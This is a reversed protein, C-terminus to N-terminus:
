CEHTQKKVIMRGVYLRDRFEFTQRVWKFFDRLNRFCYIFGRIMDLRSGFGFFIFGFEYLEGGLFCLM